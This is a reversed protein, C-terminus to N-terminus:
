RAAVTGPPICAIVKFLWAGAPRCTWGTPAGAFPHAIGRTGPVNSDYLWLVSARQKAARDFLAHNPDAAAPLNGAVMVQPAVVGARHLGYAAIHSLLEPEQGIDATPNDWLFLVRDGGHNAALWESALELSFSADPDPKQLALSLAGMMMGAYICLMAVGVSLVPYRRNVGELQCAFGLLAAPMFPLLYRPTFSPTICGVLFVALIAAIGSTVTLAVPWDIARGASRWQYLRVGAFGFGELALLLSLKGLWLVTGPLGAVDGIRQLEYWNSGPQAFDTLFRYQLLFVGFLPLLLLAAPWCQLAKRPAFALLIMGQILSVVGAYYHTMAALVSLGVWVAARYRRPDRLLAVFSIAQMTTLLILLGYSRALIGFMLGPLWLAMVSAWVLRVRWDLCRARLIVVPVALLAAMSPLRMLVPDPGSIGHWLWALGYYLPGGLEHTVWYYWGAFSQQGAIVMTYTEDFELPHHLGVIGRIVLGTGAFLAFILLLPEARVAALLSGLAPHQRPQGLVRTAM